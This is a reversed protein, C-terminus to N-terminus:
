KHSLMLSEKTKRKKYAKTKTKQNKYKQDKKDCWSVNQYWQLVKWNKHRMLIWGANIVFWGKIDCMSGWHIVPATFVKMSTFSLFIKFGKGPKNWHAQKTKDHASHLNYDFWVYQNTRKTSASWIWYCNGKDPFYILFADFHTQRPM